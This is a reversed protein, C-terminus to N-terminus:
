ATFGSLFRLGHVLEFSKKWSGLAPQFGASSITAAWSLPDHFHESHHRLANLAAWTRNGHGDLSYWTRKWNWTSTLGKFLWHFEASYSRMRQSLSEGTLSKGVLYLIHVQFQGLLRSKTLGVSIRAPWSVQQFLYTQMVRMILKKLTVQFTNLSKILM